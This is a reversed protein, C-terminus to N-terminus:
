GSRKVKPRARAPKKAPKEENLIKEGEDKGIASAHEIEANIEGGTLLVFGSLYMWTLLVIIAGISGYTKDYQGFNDVYYGFLLSMGIWALVAFVAGPTIWRWDQEVDPAFYYILAAAFMMLFVVVPWRLISWAYDFAAGVGLRDALWGGLEPGFILLIISSIMLIALGVTLLIATGRAKWFPRSEKVGYAKNLSSSIAAIASSASWLALLIGVSLLSGRPRSLLDSVNDQVVDLAEAPVFEGIMTMIQQMLDPIPIYALLSALFMLFPFLSFLYYYALQASDGWVDDKNIESFVRRLLERPSLGGLTWIEKIQEWLTM